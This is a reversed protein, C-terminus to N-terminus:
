TEGKQADGEIARCMIERSTATIEWQSDYVQWAGKVQRQWALLRKKELLDLMDSEQLAVLRAQTDDCVGQVRALETASRLLERRLWDCNGCRKEPRAAEREALATIDQKQINAISNLTRSESRWKRARKRWQRRTMRAM